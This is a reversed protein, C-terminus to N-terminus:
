KLDEIKIQIINELKVGISILSELHKVKETDSYYSAYWNADSDISQLVVKFYGVDVQSMSHGLVYVEKIDKLGNFFTNNNKIITDINKFAQTYYSLIESKASQYSYDYQDSMYERWEALEEDSLGKPPDPDKEEFNKPDTGHGLVVLSDKDISKGHIYCINQSDIGYYKELTKTYNFSLFLSDPKLRIKKDDLSPPYVVNLIFSNFISILETTLRELIMEMEIQFSHWDRDRFDPSGPRAILDSNDELVQEYDLDALADEFRAWQAYDDDNVPNESIDPLGYYLLFYGYIQSDVKALYKAFSQYRTDLGHYLDFGNGIIYLTNM